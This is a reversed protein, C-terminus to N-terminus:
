LPIFYGPAICFQKADQTVKTSEIEFFYVSFTQPLCELESTYYNRFDLMLHQTTLM